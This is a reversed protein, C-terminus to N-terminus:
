NTKEESKQTKLECEKEESEGSSMEAPEMEAGDGKGLRDNGDERVIKRVDQNQEHFEPDKSVCCNDVEIKRVDEKTSTTSQGDGENFVDEGQRQRKMKLDSAEREEEGEAEERELQVEGGVGEGRGQVGRADEEEKSLDTHLAAVEWELQEVRVQMKANSSELEAMLRALKTHLSELSSELKKIKTEVTAAEGEGGDGNEELMGMKTLIQRGKEELHRKAAPFESLVDMLAEKSLSFLDSHGISRINATRRNGSKNGKINIISIEGFFNGDSLVAFETVGDDAVVALKGEKIIYMEHGVDGKKCVYEGPSFVQPTLKLVLEELLSRDCNHFITVKSLTSLHVSVAIETRLHLPLEQLIENERIIKKNIHLHQYWNDIRHRLEKSIQHSSLYAKVLEHNPFFVNDRDRLSTIVNGVNGVISAFVLVAILLDAIMFLYEDERKPLPTDGVTTFIQASFWFCYIYQRRLSAFEPNTINPYVWRDSGFGIYSSLAFYLCANWHILVFIYIMLKSIRFTNPYSTRTEMRDLAENLRPMRLLRNIRVLPTQIGFVFYLLDTPILSALDRLFAKSHLYRQKLQTLDKVLIGQDVYGTHVTIIMDVIYMLDSLYDLTLWVPLYSLAITTFCTRLIIIVSNYVIPLIMVQLWVYYFQEAPDVLWEKWIIHLMHIANKDYKAVNEIVDVKQKQRGKLLRQWRNRTPRTDSTNDM